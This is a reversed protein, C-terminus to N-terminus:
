LEMPQRYLRFRDSDNRLNAVDDQALSFHRDWFLAPANFDQLSIRLERDVQM